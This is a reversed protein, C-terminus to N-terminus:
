MEGHKLTTRSVHTDNHCPTMKLFHQPQPTVTRAQTRSLFRKRSTSGVTKMQRLHPNSLSPFPCTQTETEFKLKKAEYINRLRLTVRDGQGWLLLSKRSVCVCVTSNTKTHDVTLSNWIELNRYPPTM